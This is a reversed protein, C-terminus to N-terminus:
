PGVVTSVPKTAWVREVLSTPVIVRIQANILNLLLCVREKDSVWHDFIALIDKFPGSKIRVLEKKKFKHPRILGNKSALSKISEILESSIPQPHTNEWLVKKVGRTWCIYYVEKKECQAFIYGPFLGKIREYKKLGKYICMKIKPFYTRIGKQALYFIVKEEQNPKTQIVYWNKYRM